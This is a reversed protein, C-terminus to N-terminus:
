RVGKEYEAKRILGFIYEGMNRKTGWFEDKDENDLLDLSDTPNIEMDNMWCQTMEEEHKEAEQKTDFIEGDM